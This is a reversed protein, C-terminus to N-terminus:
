RRRRANNRKGSKKSRQAPRSMAKRAPRKATARKPREVRSSNGQSVMSDIIEMDKTSNKDLNLQNLMNDIASDSVIESDKSTNTLAANEIDGKKLVEKIANLEKLKELELAYRGKKKNKAAM